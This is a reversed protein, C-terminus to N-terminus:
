KMGILGKLVSISVMVRVEVATSLCLHTSGFGRGASETGARHRECAEQVRTSELVSGSSQGRRKCATDKQSKGTDIM